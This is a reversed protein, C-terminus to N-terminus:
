KTSAFCGRDWHRRGNRVGDEVGRTDTQSLYRHRRLANEAREKCFRRSDRSSSGMPKHTAASSYRWADMGAHRWAQHVNRSLSNAEPMYTTSRRFRRVLRTRSYSGLPRCDM